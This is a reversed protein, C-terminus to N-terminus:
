FFFLAGKHESIEKSPHQIDPLYVQHQIGRTSFKLYVLSTGSLPQRFLTPLSKHSGLHRAIDPLAQHFTNRDRVFPDSLDRPGRRTSRDPSLCAVSFFRAGINSRPSFPVLGPKHSHLDWFFGSVSTHKMHDQSQAASHCLGVPPYWWELRREDCRVM